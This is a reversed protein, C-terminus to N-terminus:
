RESIITYVEPRRMGLISFFSRVTSVEDLDIDATLIAPMSSPAEAVVQGSPHIVCSRGFFRTTHGEVVEDGGMNCAAVWVQNELARTRLEVIFMEEAESGQGPIYSPVESPVFVIEAGQLAMVRWAEPFHRDVCIAVGITAKPTKFVPLGPGPKFYYVEDITVQGNPTPITGTGIHIKAMRNVYTGDPLIGPVIVGDPGLIVVSNYFEGETAGKEFMPLVICCKYEKAKEAFAETTPGPIPEALEFYKPDRIVPFCPTNSLESFCIFDPKEKSVQDVLKLNDHTISEKDHLKTGRQILAVRVVRRGLKM